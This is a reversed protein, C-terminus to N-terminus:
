EHCEHERDGRVCNAYDGALVVPRIDEAKEIRRQTEIWFEDLMDPSHTDGANVLALGLAQAWRRSVQGHEAQHNPTRFELADPVAGSEFMEQAGGWRFPHALVTLHGHQRAREMVARPQRQLRIYEPDNTGLVLLHLTYDIVTLEVGPFIGIPPYEAQLRALGDDPWVAEHETLYVAQYGAAIAAEVMEEPRATACASYRSTHMHLEVKM